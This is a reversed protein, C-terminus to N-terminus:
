FLAPLRFADIPMRDLVTHSALDGEVFEVEAPVAARRGQQLNDFVVVNYGRAILEAVCHSGVFGAGGTVLVTM